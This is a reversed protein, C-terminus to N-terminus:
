PWIFLFLFGLDGGGGVAVCLKEKCGFFRFPLVERVRGEDVEGNWCAVASTKM